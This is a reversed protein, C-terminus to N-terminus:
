DVKEQKDADRQYEGAFLKNQINNVEKQIKEMNFVCQISPQTYLSLTVDVIEMDNDLTRHERLLDTLHLWLKMKLVRSDQTHRDVIVDNIQLAFDSMQVSMDDIIDLYEQNIAQLKSFFFAMVFISVIDLSAVVIGMTHKHM